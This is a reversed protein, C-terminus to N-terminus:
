TGRKTVVAHPRRRAFIRRFNSPMLASLLERDVGESEDKFGQGARVRARVDTERRYEFWSGATPLPTRASASVGDDDEPRM